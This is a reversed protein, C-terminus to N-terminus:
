HYVRPADRVAAPDVWISKMPFASVDAAVHATSTLLLKTADSMAATKTIAVRGRQFYAEVFTWDSFIRLEISKESPLLTLTDKTGGCQVPVSTAGPTYDVGSQRWIVDNDREVSKCQYM